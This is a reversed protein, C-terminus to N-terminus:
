RSIEWILVFMFVPTLSVACTDQPGPLWQEPDDAKGEGDRDALFVIDPPRVSRHRVAFVILRDVRGDNDTHTDTDELLHLDRLSRQCASVTEPNTLM